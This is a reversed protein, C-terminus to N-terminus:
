TLGTVTDAQEKRRYDQIQAIYSDEVTVLQFVFPDRRSGDQAIWHIGV